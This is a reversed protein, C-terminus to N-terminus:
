LRTDDNLVEPRFNSTTWRFPRDAAAGSPRLKPDPHQQPLVWAQVHRPFEHEDVSFSTRVLLVQDPENREDRVLDLSMESVALSNLGPITVEARLAETSANGGRAARVGPEVIIELRASKPPVQLAETHIY